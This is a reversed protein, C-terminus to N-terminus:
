GSRVTESRSAAWGACNSGDDQLFRLEDGIREGAREGKGAQQHIHGLEGIMKM